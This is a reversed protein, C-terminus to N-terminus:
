LCQLVVVSYCKFRHMKFFSDIVWIFFIYYIDSVGYFPKNVEETGISYYVGEGCQVKVIAAGCSASQVARVVGALEGDYAGMGPCVKLNDEDPLDDGTNKKQYYTKLANFRKCYEEKTVYKHDDCSNGTAEKLMNSLADLISIVAPRTLDTTETKGRDDCQLVQDEELMKHLIPHAEMFNSKTPM